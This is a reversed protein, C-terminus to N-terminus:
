FKCPGGKSASFACWRCSNNPKMVFATDNLMPRTREEWADIMDGLEDREYSETPIPAGHDLYWLAASIHDLKPFKLFGALAYLSLQTKHSENRKGTKHDVITIAEGKKDGFVLDTKVRCWADKGFWSTDSWDSRFAWEAECLPNGKKALAFEKKFTKAPGSMFEARFKEARDIDEQKPSMKGSIIQEALSHMAIGRDVAPGAPPEPLKDIFKCKAKFPCDEYVSYRSYSWATIKQPVTAAM